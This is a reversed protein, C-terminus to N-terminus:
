AFAALRHELRARVGPWDDRTIAYYVSDRMTGDGIRMHKRHIGEFQAGLKEIAKRSPTNRVDTKFEVREAGADFAHTLLLLKCAPNVPGGQAARAYWTGGIEVGDHEPRITLYATQGVAAGNAFVTFHRFSGNTEWALMKDFAADWNSVDRSWNTWIAPDAALPRLLERHAETLPELRVFRNQLPIVTLNM